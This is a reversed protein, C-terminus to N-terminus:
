LLHLRLYADSTSVPAADLDAQVTVIDVRVSRRRDEVALEELEAPAIWPERGDPIRGLRPEPFWTDLVTGDGAITALGYGWALRPSRSAPAASEHSVDSPM